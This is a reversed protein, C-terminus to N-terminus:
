DYRADYVFARVEVDQKGDPNSVTVDVMRGDDGGPTTVELTSGDVFKTPVAEGDLLVVSESLFGRGTISIESGGKAAVHNPAVSDIAPPPLPEYRFAKPLTVLEAGPNQVSVDVPGPGPRPPTSVEIAKPESAGVTAAISGGIRVISERFLNEGAITVKQGGLTFGHDPEVQEIVAKPLTTPPPVARPRPVSEPPPELPFSSIPNGDGAPPPGPPMPPPPPPRPPESRPKSHSEVEPQPDPAFDPKPEPETAGQENATGEDVESGEVDDGSM